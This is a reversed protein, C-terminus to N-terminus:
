GPCRELPLSAVFYSSFMFFPLHHVLNRFANSKPELGAAELESPRVMEKAKNRKKRRKIMMRRRMMLKMRVMMMIM